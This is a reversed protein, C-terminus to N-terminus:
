CKLCSQGALAQLVKVMSQIPWTQLRFKGGDSALVPGHLQRVTLEYVCLGASYKCM